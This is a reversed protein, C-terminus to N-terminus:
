EGSHYRTENQIINGHTRRARNIKYDTTTKDDATQQYYDFTKNNASDTHRPHSLSPIETVYSYGENSILSGDENTKLNATKTNKINYYPPNLKDDTM